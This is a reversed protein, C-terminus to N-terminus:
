HERNIRSTSNGEYTNQSTQLVLLFNVYLETENTKFTPFDFERIGTTNRDCVCVFKCSMDFLFFSLFYFFLWSTWNLIRHSFQFVFRNFPILCTNKYQLVFRNFPILCTDECTM